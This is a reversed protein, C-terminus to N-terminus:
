PSLNMFMSFGLAHQGNELRVLVDNRGERFVVKRFGEDPRWNKHEDSSHWVPMGNIWVDSRDDSGIALWVETEEEFRLETYFYYIKWSEWGYPVIMPPLFSEYEWRMPKGDESRYRADLDLISEPPYVKQLNARHPNDYRSLVYWDGVFLWGSERPSGARIIRVSPAEELAQWDQWLAPRQGPPVEVPPITLDRGRMQATLDIWKGSRAHAHEELTQRQLIAEDAARQTESGPAAPMGATERIDALVEAVATAAEQAALMKKVAQGTHDKAAQHEPAEPAAHDAEMVAALAERIEAVLAEAKEIHAESVEEEQKQKEVIEVVMEMAVDIKADLEALEALEAPEPEGAELAEASAEMAERVQEKAAGLEEQVAELTQDVEALARELIEQLASGQHAHQEPDPMEVDVVEADTEEPMERLLSNLLEEANAVIAGTERMVVGLERQFETVAEADGARDTLLARDVERRESLPILTSELSRALTQRQVLSLEAARIERYMEVIEAELEQAQRYADYVGLDGAPANERVEHLRLGSLLMRAQADDASQASQAAATGALLLFALLIRKFVMSNM